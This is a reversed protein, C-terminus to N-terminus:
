GLPSIAVACYKFEPIKGVPDLAPNTLLNAAAERYAFPMFVTGDPIADDHRLQVQLAGRRTRLTVSAGASVGLTALAHANVSTTAVPELADLVESRRTMSGTHWHELQRGTILVWPFDVDPLEQAAKLGVSVLQARGNPTPFRQLFVSAQGPDDEGLCPYTVSGARELREWSVGTILSGLCHRMEEYVAAVGHLEGPYAWHLGLRQAMQQIVWLDARADGPPTIAQRGMQIMRDTNSVSGTKEPWATAPLVVDALWATETMFIDQVVL